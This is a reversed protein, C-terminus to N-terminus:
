NKGDWTPCRENSRTDRGALPDRINRRVAGSYLWWSRATVVLQCGELEVSHGTKLTVKGVHLTAARTKTESARAFSTRSPVVRNDNAPKLTERKESDVM